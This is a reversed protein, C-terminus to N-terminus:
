IRLTVEKLSRIYMESWIAQQDVGHVRALHAVSRELDAHIAKAKDTMTKEIRKSNNWKRGYHLATEPRLVLGVM